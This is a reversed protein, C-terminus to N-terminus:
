LLLVAAQHKSLHKRYPCKPAIPSYSWKLNVVRSCSEALCFFFTVSSEKGTKQDTILHVHAASKNTVYKRKKRRAKLHGATKENTLSKRLPNFELCKLEGKPSQLSFGIEGIYLLLQNICSPLIIVVCICILGWAHFSATNWKLSCEFVTKLEGEGVEQRYKRM